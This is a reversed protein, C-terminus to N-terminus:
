SVMIKDVVGRDLAMKSNKVSIVFPGSRGNHVVTVQTNPLLGMTTLRVRLGRSGNIRIVNVTQGEAVGSLSRIVTTEM